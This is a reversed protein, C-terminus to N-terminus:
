WSLDLDNGKKRQKSHNLREVDDTFLTTPTTTEEKKQVGTHLKM